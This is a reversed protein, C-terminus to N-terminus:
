VMPVKVGRTKHSLKNVSQQLISPINNGVLDPFQNYETEVWPVTGQNATGSQFTAMCWNGRYKKWLNTYWGFAPKFEPTTTGPLLVRVWTILKAELVAETLSNDTFIVKLSGIDHLSFNYFVTQALAIYTANVDAVTLLPGFNDTTNWWQFIGDPCFSEAIANCRSVCYQTSVNRCSNFCKDCAYNYKIQADKVEEKAVLERLSSLLGTIDSLDEALTSSFCFIALTAVLLFLAKSAM